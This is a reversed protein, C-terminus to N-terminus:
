FSKKRKTKLFIASIIILIPIAKLLASDLITPPELVAYDGYKSRIFLLIDEDTENNLIKQRIVKRMAYSIYTDSDRITEGNCVMCRVKSFLAQARYELKTDSISEDKLDSYSQVAYFVFIVFAYIPYSYLKKNLTAMM